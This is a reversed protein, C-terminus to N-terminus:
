KRARYLAFVLAIIIIVVVVALITTTVTETPTEQFSRAVQLFANDGLFDYGIAKITHAGSSYNSTDVKWSFPTSTDNQQLQNDIFFEVYQTDSSVFATITWVGGIDNGVGYGNNKTFDLDISPKAEALPYLLFTMLCILAIFSCSRSQM